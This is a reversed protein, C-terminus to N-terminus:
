GTECSSVSGKAPEGYAYADNTPAFKAKLCAALLRTYLTRASSQYRESAPIAADYVQRLAIVMAEPAMGSAHAHRCVGDAIASIHLAKADDERAAM